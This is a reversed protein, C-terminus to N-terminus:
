MTAVVQEDMQCHLGTSPAQFLATEGRQTSKVLFQYAFAPKEIAVSTSTKNSGMRGSHALLNGAACFLARM